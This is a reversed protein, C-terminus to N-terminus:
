SDKVYWPSFRESYDPKRTGGTRSDSVATMNGKSHIWVDKSTFVNQLLDHTHGFIPLNKPEAAQIETLLVNSNRADFSGNVDAKKWTVILNCIFFYYPLAIRNHFSLATLQHPFSITTFSYTLTFLAMASTHLSKTTQVNRLLM